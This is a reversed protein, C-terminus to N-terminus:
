PYKAKQLKFETEKLKKGLFNNRKDNSTINKESLGQNMCVIYKHIIFITLLINHTIM